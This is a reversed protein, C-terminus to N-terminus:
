IAAAFPSLPARLLAGFHAAARCLVTGVTHVSAKLSPQLGWRGTQCDRRISSARRHGCSLGSCCATLHTKTARVRPALGGGVSRCVMLPAQMGPTRANAAQQAGLGGFGQGWGAAAAGGGASVHRQRPAVDEECAATAAALGEPDTVHDVQPFLLALLYTHRRVQRNSEATNSCHPTATHRNPQCRAANLTPPQTQSSLERGAWSAARRLHRQRCQRAARGLQDAAGRQVLDERHTGGFLHAYAAPRAEEPERSKRGSLIAQWARHKSPILLQLSPTPHNGLSGKHSSAQGQGRGRGQGQRCTPCMVAGLLFRAAWSPRRSTSMQSSTPVAHEAHVAHWQIARVASCQVASCVIPLAAQRGALKGAQRGM